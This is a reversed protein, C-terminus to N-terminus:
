YSSRYSTNDEAENERQIEAEIEIREEEGIEVRDFSIDDPNFLIQMQCNIGNSDLTRFYAIPHVFTALAEGNFKFPVFSLSFVPIPVNEKGADMQESAKQSMIRYQELLDNLERLYADKESDFRFIVNTIDDTLAYMDMSCYEISMERVYEHDEDAVEALTKDGSNHINEILAIIATPTYGDENKALIEDLITEATIEQESEDKKTEPAPAVFSDDYRVEEPDTNVSNPNDM